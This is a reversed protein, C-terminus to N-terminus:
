RSSVNKFSSCCFRWFPLYKAATNRKPQWEFRIWKKMGIWESDVPTERNFRFTCPPNNQTSRHYKVRGKNAHKRPTSSGYRNREESSRHSMSWTHDFYFHYLFRETLDNSFNTIGQTEDSNANTYFMPCDMLKVRQPQTKLKKMHVIQIQDIWTSTNAQYWRAKWRIQSKRPSAGHKKEWAKVRDFLMKDFIFVYPKSSM